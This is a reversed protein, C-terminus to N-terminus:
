ILRFIDTNGLCSTKNLWSWDIVNNLTTEGSFINPGSVRQGQRDSRGGSRSGTQTKRKLCWCLDPSFIIGLLLFYSNSQFLLDIKTHVNEKFNRDTKINLLPLKCSVTYRQFWKKRFLESKSLLFMIHRVLGQSFITLLGFSFLELYIMM